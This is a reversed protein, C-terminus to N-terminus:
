VPFREVHTEGTRGMYVARRGLFSVLYSACGAAAIRRCFGKYSYGAAQAQADRIAARILGSDFGAAIGTELAHTPLDLFTDDPRYYTARGARFDVAYAEFGADMLAGVIQPFTLTDGEAAALCTRAIETSRSDM